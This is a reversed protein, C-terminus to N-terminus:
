LSTSRQNSVQMRVAVDIHCKIIRHRMSGPSRVPKIDFQKSQVITTFIHRGESIAPVEIGISSFYNLLHLIWRSMWFLAHLLAQFSNQSFPPFMKIIITAIQPQNALRARISGPFEISGCIRFTSSSVDRTFLWVKLCLFGIQCLNYLTLTEVDDEIRLIM